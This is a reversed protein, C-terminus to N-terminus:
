LQVLQDDLNIKQGHKGQPCQTDEYNLIGCMRLFLSRHVCRPADAGNTVNPSIRPVLSDYDHIFM